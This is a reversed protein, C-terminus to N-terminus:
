WGRRISEGRRRAELDGREGRAEYVWRAAAGYWCFRDPPPTVSGLRHSLWRGSCFYFLSLCFLFSVELAQHQTLFRLRGKIQIAEMRYNSKNGQTLESIIDALLLVLWNESNLIEGLFIASNTFGAGNIKSCLKPQLNLPLVQVCPM